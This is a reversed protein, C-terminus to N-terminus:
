LLQGVIPVREPIPVPRLTFIMVVDPIPQMQWTLIWEM